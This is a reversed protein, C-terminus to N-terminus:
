VEKKKKVIEIDENNMVTELNEKFRMSRSSLVGNPASIPTVSLIGLSRPGTQPEDDTASALIDNIHETKVVGFEKSLSKIKEIVTDSQSQDAGAWNLLEKLADCDISCNKHEDDSDIVPLDPSVIKSPINIGGVTNNVPPEEYQPFPAEMMLKLKKQWDNVLGM